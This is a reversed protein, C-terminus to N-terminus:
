ESREWLQSPMEELCDDIVLAGGGQTSIFGALCKKDFGLFFRSGKEPIIKAQTKSYRDCVKLTPEEKNPAFHICTQTKENMVGNGYFDIWSSVSSKEDCEDTFILSKGKTSLCTGPNEASMILGGDAYANSFSFFLIMLIGVGTKKM